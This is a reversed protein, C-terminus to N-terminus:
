VLSCGLLLDRNEQVWLKAFNASEGVIHTRRRRHRPGNEAWTGTAPDKTRMCWTPGDRLGPAPELRIQGAEQGCLTCAVVEWPVAPGLRGARRGARVPPVLPAARVPQDEVRDVALGLAAPAADVDPEAHDALAPAPAAEVAAPEAAPEPEPAGEVGPEAAPAVDRESRRARKKPVRALRPGKSKKGRTVQAKLLRWEAVRQRERRKKLGAYVEPFDQQDANDMGDFVAEALPDELVKQAADPKKTEPVFADGFHLSILELLKVRSGGDAIQLHRACRVIDEHSLTVSHGSAFCHRMLPVAQATQKFIIGRDRLQGVTPIAHYDSPDTVHFWEMCGGQQFAYTRLEGEEDLQMVPWGLGAWAANGMSAYVRADSRAILVFPM